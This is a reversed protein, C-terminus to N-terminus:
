ETLKEMPYDAMEILLWKAELVLLELKPERKDFWEVEVNEDKNNVLENLHSSNRQYYNHLYVAIMLM